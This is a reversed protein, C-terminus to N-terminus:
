RGDGTLRTLTAQIGVLPINTRNGNEDEYIVAAINEEAIDVMVSPAILFVGPEFAAKETKALNQRYEETNKYGVDLSYDIGAEADKTVIEYVKGSTGELAAIVGAPLMAQDKGQTNEISIYVVAGKTIESTGMIFEVKTVEMNFDNRLMKNAQVQVESGAQAMAFPSNPYAVIIGGLLFLALVLAITIIKGKKM